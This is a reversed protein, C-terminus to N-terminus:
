RIEAMNKGTVIVKIKKGHRNTASIMDGIRGNQNAKAIYSIALNKDVVNININAGKKIAYLGIVDRKTLIKGKKLNHKAQVYLNDIDNLPLARFKGLIINEERTNIRSIPEDKHIRKQTKLIEIKANIQYNFFIKKNTLTRIYLNGQNRLYSKKTFGISYTDPIKEIFSRPEVLINIIDINPYNNQYLTKIASKIRRTDIPSKKSFQVYSHKAIIDKYGYTHLKSILDKSKIRKSHKSKNINFLIADTKPSKILDSISIYDNDVYYIKQLTVSSFLLSQFCILFFLNKINM